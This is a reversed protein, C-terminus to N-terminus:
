FIINSDDLMVLYHAHKLAQLFLQIDTLVADLHSEESVNPIVPDTTTIPSSPLPLAASGEDGMCMLWVSTM